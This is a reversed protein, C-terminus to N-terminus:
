SLFHKCLEPFTRDNRGPYFLCHNRKTPVAVAGHELSGAPDGLAGNGNRAQMFTWVESTGTPQVDSSRDDRVPHVRRDLM